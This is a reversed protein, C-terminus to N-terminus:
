LAEIILYLAKGAYYLIYAGTLLAFGILFVPVEHLTRYQGFLFYFIMSFVGISGAIAMIILFDNWLTTPERLLESVGGPELFINM